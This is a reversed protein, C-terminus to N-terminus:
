NAGGFCDLAHHQNKSLCLYSNEKIVISIMYDLEM